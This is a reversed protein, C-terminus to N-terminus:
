INSKKLKQTIAEILFNRIDEETLETVNKQKKIFEVFDEGYEFVAEGNPRIEVIKVEPPKSM